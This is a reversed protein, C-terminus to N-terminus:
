NDLPMMLPLYLKNSLDASEYAGASPPAPRISGDFDISSSLTPHGSQTLAATESEPFLNTNSTFGPSTAQSNTGWGQEQWKALDNATTAWSGTNNGCVNYDIVDYNNAALSLNFCPANNDSGTFQIANSIVSHGSGEVLEIGTGTTTSISNNRITIGNSIADEGNTGYNSVSIGTTGFSQEQVIVNNEITCGVCSGTTISTNGVNEVRNGRIILNIYTEATGGYAPSIGIGWCTQNAKGVDEHIYNGEILLDTISGHGVLSTGGCNGDEDISAKYLENDRITVGSDGTIYVNHTFVSGDGNNEFRNNEILLENGHGLFGQSSNNTFQSNRISVQDNSCWINICGRLHIGITFGNISVNDILIDDADEVIFFGWGTGGDCGTCRMDLNEFIHHSDNNITFGHGDINRQLIPRSENGSAWPPTYDSITCPQDATCSSTLWWNDYDSSIDHAGGQCFLIKDGAAISSNYFNRAQDYTQWPAAPDTGTNADNGAICDSDAGTQCNCVYYTTAVPAAQGIQWTHGLLFVTMGVGFILVFFGTHRM